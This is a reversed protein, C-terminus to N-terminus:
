NVTNKTTWLAVTM